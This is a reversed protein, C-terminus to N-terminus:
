KYMSLSVNLIGALHIISYDLYWTYGGFTKKYGLTGWKTIEATTHIRTWGQKKLITTLKKELTPRFKDIDKSNTVGYPRDGSPPELYFQLGLDTYAKERKKGSFTFSTTCTRKARPTKKYRSGIDAVGDPKSQKDYAFPPKSVKALESLCTPLYSDSAATAVGPVGAIFTSVVFMAVIYQLKMLM